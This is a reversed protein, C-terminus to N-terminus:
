QFDASLTMKKWKGLEASLAAIKEEARKFADSGLFLHLPPEPEEALEIFIEAAKEPDGAQQGNMSLYREQTKKVMQYDEIKNQDFILSGKDLFGTRFGSPEVVTVKIGMEKVDAALVESFAIVAAKTASYVSWGPAGVFGAVSAINLFYGAGQARMVPMISKTVNIIAMINIDFIDRVKEEDMEEIAGVMGYGANNVVVDIRGFERVTQEISQKISNSNTLDVVLPLFRTTDNIGVAKELSDRNRSTAAVRHGVALLKKVLSLGLGQSAGTVYWVKTATKGM